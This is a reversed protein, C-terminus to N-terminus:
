VLDDPVARPHEDLVELLPRIEDFRNGKTVAGRDRDWDIFGYEALKPLHLHHELITSEDPKAREGPRPSVNRPNKELLEFLLERRHRDALAEFLENVM